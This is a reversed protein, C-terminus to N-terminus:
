GGLARLFMASFAWVIKGFNPANSTVDPEWFYDLPSKQKVNRSLATLYLFLYATIHM